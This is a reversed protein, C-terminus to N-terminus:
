CPPSRRSAASASGMGRRYAPWQRWTPTTFYRGGRQPRPIAAFGERRVMDILAGLSQMADRSLNARLQAPNEGAVPVTGQLVGFRM